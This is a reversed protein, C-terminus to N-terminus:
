ESNPDWIVVVYFLTRKFFPLDYFPGAMRPARHLWRHLLSAEKRKRHLIPHILEDGYELSLGTRLHSGPINAFVISGDPGM